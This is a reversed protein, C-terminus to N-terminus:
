KLSKRCRRIETLSYKFVNSMGGKFVKVGKILGRKRLSYLKDFTIGLKDATQKSTLMM